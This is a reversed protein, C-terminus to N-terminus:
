YTEIICTNFSSGFVYVFYIFVKIFLKDFRGYANWDVRRFDDGPVYERFDSFEVSMGKAHSKRGGQLGKTIRLNINLHIKQLKKFFDDNFIKEEM